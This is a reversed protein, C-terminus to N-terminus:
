CASADSGLSLGVPTGDLGPRRTAVADEGRAADREQGASRGRRASPAPARSHERWGTHHPGVGTSQCGHVPRPANSTDLDAVQVV